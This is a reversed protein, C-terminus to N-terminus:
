PKRAWQGPRSEVFNGSLTNEVARSFALKAVQGIEINNERAIQEYRQRRQANVDAVLATVDAPVNQQVFGIYGDQKEGIQGAAKAEDLSAAFAMSTTFALLFLVRTLSKILRM